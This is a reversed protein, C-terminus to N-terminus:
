AIGASKVFNKFETSNAFGSFVQERTMGDAMKKLWRSKGGADPNRNFMAAYLRTLFEEDSLNKSKLEASFFFGQAIQAATKEGRLYRGTHNNLGTIDYNRKLVKTYMRSVFATLKENQDRNEAPTYKGATIGYEACLRGFEASAVFGKLIYAYSCGNDLTTAWRTVEKASPTRNLFTKYMRTVFESNTLKKSKLETSLVFKESVEAATKGSELQAVWKAKGNKDSKRGLLENYLREVFKEISTVERRGCEDCVGDTYSEHACEAECKDCVGDTYSEHECVFYICNDDRLEVKMGDASVIKSIDFETDGTYETLDAVKGSPAKITLTNTLSGSFFICGDDCLTITDTFEIIEIGSVDGHATFKNVAGNYGFEAGGYVELENVSGMILAGDGNVTVKGSFIGMLALVVNEASTINGSVTLEGLSRMFVTSLDTGSNNVTINKAFDKYLILQLYEKAKADIVIDKEYAAFIRVIVQEGELSDAKQLAEEVTAFVYTETESDETERYSVEANITKYCDICINFEPDIYEHACESGCITCVGDVMNHDCETGCEDCVGDTYSGHTCVTGCEDCTGDTYSEHTCVTGCGDCTGDTYSEHTCDAGCKDCVGDTYNEHECVFTIQGYENYAVTYGDTSTIMEYNFTEPDVNGLLAAVYGPKAQIKIPTTLNVGINVRTDEPITITGTVLAGSLSVSGSYINVDGATGCQLDTRSYSNVTEVSGDTLIMTSKATMTKISAGDRIEVCVDAGTTVNGNVTLKEVILYSLGEATINGTFTVPTLADTKVVISADKRNLTIDGTCDKIFSLIYMSENSNIEAVAEEVTAFYVGDGSGSRVEAAIESGCESCVGGTVTEHACGAGCKDCVGDTYNEHECVFEIKNNENLVVKYGDASVIKTLDFTAPDISQGFTAVVGLGAKITLTNLPTEFITIYKGEALTLVGTINTNEYICAGGYANANGITGGEFNVFDSTTIVTEASGGNFNLQCNATLTKVSAGDYICVNVNEGSTVNGNVTLNELQLVFMNEATINGTLTVPTNGFSKVTISGDTRTLAIDGTYDKTLNLYYANENSNVEAVAEEVTAFYIYEGYVNTGIVAAFESGCEDCVGDTVTEHACGAGCKDCVGDTYSEHECVIYIEREDQLVVKYGDASVIKTLDFTAPDVTSLLTAVRGPKAQIKIPTTLNEIINLSKGEALTLTGTINVGAYVTSGDSFVNVNEINGGELSADGYINVTEASGAKFHVFGNATVTKIDSGEGIVLQINEDTTVSGNVILNSLIWNSYNMVESTININGTLTVIDNDSRLMLNGTTRNLAIDGTYDKTFYLSEANENSNVEAVAEEVTAFYINTGITAAMETQCDTCVNDTVNAHACEGEASAAIDLGFGAFGSPFDAAASLSVAAAAILATAKRLFKRM